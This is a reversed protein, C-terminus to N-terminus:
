LATPSCRIVPIFSALNGLPYSFDDQHLVLGRTGELVILFLLSRQCLHPLPILSQQGEQILWKVEPLFLLSLAPLLFTFWFCFAGCFAIRSM